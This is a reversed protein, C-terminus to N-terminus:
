RTVTHHLKLTHSMWRDSQRHSQRAVRLAVRLAVRFHFEWTHLRHKSAVYWRKLKERTMLAYVYVSQVVEPASSCKPRCCSATYCRTFPEHVFPNIKVQHILRPMSRHVFSGPLAVLFRQPSTKRNRTSLCHRTITSFTEWPPIYKLDRRDRLNATKERRLCHAQAKKKWVFRRDFDESLDKKLLDKKLLDETLIKKWFRRAFDEKLLDEKLIKKWCIKKWRIKKWFRREFDESLDVFRQVPKPNPDEKLIKQYIKKGVFRRKWVSTQGRHWVLPRVLQSRVM